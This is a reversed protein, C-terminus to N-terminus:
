RPLPAVWEPAEPTRTAARAVAYIPGFRAGLAVRRQRSPGGREPQQDMYQQFDIDRLWKWFPHVSVVEPTVHNQLDAWLYVQGEGFRYKYQEFKKPVEDLLVPTFEPFGYEKPDGGALVVGLQARVCKQCRGCNGGRSKDADLCVRLAFPRSGNARYFEVIRALKDQREVDYSDHHVSATALSILDDIRPDSGWPTVFDPGYSAAIQLMPIGHQYLIPATVGTYAMGHQVLTWWHPIEPTLSRLQLYNLSKLNARATAFGGAHAAAFAGNQAVVKSWSERDSM